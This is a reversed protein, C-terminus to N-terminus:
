LTKKKIQDRLQSNKRSVIQSLFLLLGVLFIVYHSIEKFKASNYNKFIQSMDSYIHFDSM